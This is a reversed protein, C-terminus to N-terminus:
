NDLIKLLEDRGPRNLLSVSEGNILKMDCGDTIHGILVPFRKIGKIENYAIVESELRYREDSVIYIMCGASLLNYPNLSLRESIETTISNVPIKQVDIEFGLGSIQHLTFLSQYIGREGSSIRFINDPFIDEWKVTNDKIDPFGSLHDKHYKLILKIGAYGSFGSVYIAQGPTFVHDDYSIIQDSIFLGIEKAEDRILEDNNKINLKVYKKLYNIM